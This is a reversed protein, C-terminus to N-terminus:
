YLYKTFITKFCRQKGYSCILKLSEISLYVRNIKTDFTENSKAKIYM